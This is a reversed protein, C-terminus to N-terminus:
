ILQEWTEIYCKAIKRYDHIQEVYRRAERGIDRIQEKNKVVWEISDEINKVEPRINIIPPYSDTKNERAIEENDGLVVKGMAMSMLANIGPVYGKCQDIVVNTRELLKMYENLPMKGDIIMEVELPYREKVNKMAERIYPTGKFVERNIGHFFVIKDEIENEKYEIADVNIAMPIMTLYKPHNRYVEDYEYCVPIIYDVLELVKEDNVAYPKGDEYWEDLYDCGDLAYYSLKFKGSKYYRYLEVDTGASTLILKRNKRKIQRLLFLNIKPSFILPSIIQVIDYNKWKRMQLLPYIIKDFLKIGTNAELTGTMGNIKKWHDGNAYWDVEFNNKKLGEVIYKYLGSFEGLFLVKM